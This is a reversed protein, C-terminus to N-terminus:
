EDTYEEVAKVHEKLDSISFGTPFLREAHAQVAAQARDLSVDDDLVAYLFFQRLGPFQITARYYKSMPLGQQYLIGM